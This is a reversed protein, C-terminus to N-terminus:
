GVSSRVYMDWRELNLAEEVLSDLAHLKVADFVLRTGYGFDQNYYGQLFEDKEVWGWIMFRPDEYSVKKDKGVFQALIAVDSKFLYDANFILKQLESTKVQITTSGLTLDHGDDGGTLISTDPTLDLVKAVAAEGLHGIINIGVSTNNRDFMRDTVNHQIKDRQLKEVFELTRQVEHEDLEVEIPQKSLRYM